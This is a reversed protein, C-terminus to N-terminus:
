GIFFYDTVRWMVYPTNGIMIEPMLDSWIRARVEDPMRASVTEAAIGLACADMGAIVEQMKAYSVGESNAFAAVQLALAWQQSGLDLGYQQLIAEDRATPRAYRQPREQASRAVTLITVMWDMAWDYQPSGYPFERLLAPVLDEENQSLYAALRPGECWDSDAAQLERLGSAFGAMITQFEDSRAGKIAFAQAQFQAFLAELLLQALQDETQQEAIARRATADLEAYTAPAASKLAEVARRTPVDQLRDLLGPLAAEAELPPADPPSSPGLVFVGLFGVAVLGLSILGLWIGIQRHAVEDM